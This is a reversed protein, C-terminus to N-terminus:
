SEVAIGSIDVIDLNLVLYRYYCVVHSNHLVPNM